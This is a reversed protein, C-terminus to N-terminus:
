PEASAIFSRVGDRGIPGAARRSTFRLLIAVPNGGAGGYEAAGATRRGGIRVGHRPALSPDHRVSDM